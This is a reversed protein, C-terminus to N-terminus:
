VLRISSCALQSDEVRISPTVVFSLCIKLNVWKCKLIASVSFHQQCCKRQKAKKNKKELELYTHM